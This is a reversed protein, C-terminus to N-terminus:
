EVLLEFFPTPGGPLANTDITIKLKGSEVVVPIQDMREGNLKLSYLTAKQAVQARDLTLELKGTRLLLPKGGLNDLVERNADRFKMNNNLADTSFVLLLHKGTKLTADSDLSAVTVSAPVNCSQVTLAGATYSQDKKVIVGALRPTNVALLGQNTDLYIEGTDSEFIGKAPNSRNTEGLAKLERLKAVVQSLNATSLSNEVSTFMDSGGLKAIGDPYVTLVPKINAKPKQYIIGVKCIPWLKSLEDSLGFLARGGFIFDYTLPIEVSNKAEAVDGRLYCLATVTEAARIVPDFGVDFPQLRSGAFQVQGAHCNLANWGQLAAGAGFLLGQEHRFQNWFVLGFETCFFPRDLFRAVAMSKFSNGGSTLTNQQSVKTGPQNYGGEPHAHYCNMSVAPLLSRAPVSVLRTRMNWNTSLGRYGMEDLTKLYFETMEYEMQGIFESMMLGAPSKGSAVQHTIGPVDEFKGDAKLEVDGAKGQWAAYLKAYDNDFRQKLYAVWAPKFEVSYDRYESLIEQENLYSVIALAPDTLLSQKTYPNVHTFLKTVGARWNDRFMPNIFMQVKTTYSGKSSPTGNQGNDYGIYTTMADMNLYIGNRKLQYVLYDFKDLIVPDFGIQEATEPLIYRGQPNKLAPSRMTNQLIQDLFHFRVMNYGQRAALAAYNEIDEKSMGPLAQPILQISMFRAARGPAKEFVALGEDNVTLRGLSGAERRTTINTFDLASGPKIVLDTNDIIRWNGPETVNVAATTAAKAAAASEANGPIIQACLPGLYIDDNARYETFLIRPINIQPAGATNVLLTLEFKQWDGTLKLQKTESYHSSAPADETIRLAVTQPRSAKAYFSLNVTDGAKISKGPLRYVIFPPFQLDEMNYRSNVKLSTQKDPTPTAPDAAIKVSNWHVPMADSTNYDWVAAQVSVALSLLLLYFVHKM